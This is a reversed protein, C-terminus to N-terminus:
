ADKLYMGTIDATTRIVLLFADAANEATLGALGGDAPNRSDPPLAYARRLFSRVEAEVRQRGRDPHRDQHLQVLKRWPLSQTTLPRAM